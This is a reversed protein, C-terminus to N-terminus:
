RRRLSWLRALRGFESDEMYRNGRFNTIQSTRAGFRIRIAMSEIVAPVTHVELFNPAWFRGDWYGIQATSKCNPLQTKELHTVVVVLWYRNEEVGVNRGVRPDGAYINERFNFIQSTRVGFRMRKSTSEIAPPVNPSALFHPAGYRFDWYGIRATSKCAPLQTKRM